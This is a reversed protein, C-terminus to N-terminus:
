YTPIQNILTVKSPSLSASFGADTANAIGTYEAEWGFLPDRKLTDKKYLGKTMQFAVSRLNVGSLGNSVTWVLPQQTGALYTTLPSEDAAVFMIKGDVTTDGRFIGYPTQSGNATNKVILARKLTWIWETINTVQVGNITTTSFWSPQVVETTPTLTPPTATPASALSTMKGAVKFLQEANATFTLEDVCGWPYARAGVTPTIGTRDIWTHTPPQGTGSNLLSFVHTYGNANTTNTVASATAHAFRTPTAANLTITNTAVSAVQVLEAGGSADPGVQLWQNTAFGAGSVVTLSTAGASVGGNLTSNPAAATATTTYDGMSNLLADGIWDDMVNGDFSATAWLKGVASGYEKAMAQRLGEDILIHADDLPDFKLLPPYRTATVATGAAGPAEKGTGFFSLASPYVIPTPM